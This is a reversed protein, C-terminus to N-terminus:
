LAVESQGNHGYIEMTDTPAVFLPSVAIAEGIQQLVVIASTAVGDVYCPYLMFNEYREDRIAEFAALHQAFLAPHLPLLHATRDFAARLRGKMDAPELRIM